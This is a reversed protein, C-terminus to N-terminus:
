QALGCEQHPNINVPDQLCSKNSKIWPLLFLLHQGFLCVPCLSFLVADMMYFNCNLERVLGNCNMLARFEARSWYFGTDTRCVFHRCPFYMKMIQTGMHDVWLCPKSDKKFFFFRKLLFFISFIPFFLNYIKQGSIFSFKCGWNNWGLKFLESM